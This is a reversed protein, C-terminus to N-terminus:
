HDRDDRNSFVISFLIDMVLIYVQVLTHTEPKKKYINDFFSNINYIFASVFIQTMKYVRFTTRLILIMFLVVIIAISYENSDNSSIEKVINIIVPLLAFALFSQIIAYLWTKLIYRIQVNGQYKIPIINLTVAKDFTDISHTALTKMIQYSMVVMSITTIIRLVMNADLWFAEYIGRILIMFIYFAVGWKMIYKLANFIKYYG